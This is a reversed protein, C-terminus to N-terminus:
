EDYMINIIFDIMDQAQIEGDKVRQDIEGIRLFKNLFSNIDCPLSKTRLFYLQKDSMGYDSALVSRGMHAVLLNRMSNYVLGLVAFGDIELQKLYPYYRKLNETDKYVIYNSFDIATTNCLDDYEGDESFLGFLHKREGESFIRYKELENSLRYIDKCNDLLWDIDKKSAGKAMSYAYDKLQWDEIAKIEIIDGKYSNQLSNVIKDCIIFIPYLQESITYQFDFEETSFVTLNNKANVEQIGFIDVTDNQELTEIYQPEIGYVKKIETIYQKPIFRLKKCVFIVINPLEQKNEITLKLQQLTM